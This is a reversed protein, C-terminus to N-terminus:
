SWVGTARVLEEIESGAGIRELIEWGGEGRRFLTAHNRLDDETTRGAIWLGGPAVSQFAARSGEALQEEPFYSKNFINM